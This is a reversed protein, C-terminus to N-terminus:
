APKDEPQENPESNTEAKGTKAEATKAQAAADAKKKAAQGRKAADGISAKVADETKKQDDPDLIKAGTRELANLGAKAPNAASRAISNLSSATERLGTDDAADNMARQFDRAMGRAKGVWKGASRFLNAFDRPGLIILAVIFVILFEFFGLDFM